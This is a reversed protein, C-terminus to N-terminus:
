TTCPYWIIDRNKGTNNVMDHFHGNKKLLEFPIGEEVITGKDMVVVRDYDAVTNLRHAITIIICKNFTQRICQQILADTEYDVNSTAEDLILIRNQNLMVRALCFLQKEGVSFSEAVNTINTELEDKM